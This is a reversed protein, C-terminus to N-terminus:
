QKRHMQVKQWPKSLVAFCFKPPPLVAQSSLFSDLYSVLHTPAAQQAGTVNSWSSGLLYKNAPIRIPWLYASSSAANFRDKPHQRHSFTNIYSELRTDEGLSIRRTSITSPRHSLLLKSHLWMTSSCSSCKSVQHNLLHSTYRAHPRPQTPDCVHFVSIVIDTTVTCSFWVDLDACTTRRQSWWLRSDSLFM